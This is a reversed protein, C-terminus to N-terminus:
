RGRENDKSTPHLHRKSNPFDAVTNRFEDIENSNYIPNDSIRNFDRFNDFYNFRTVSYSKSYINYSIFTSSLLGQDVSDLM